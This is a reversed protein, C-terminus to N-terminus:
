KKIIVIDYVYYSIYIPKVYFEYSRAIDPTINVHINVQHPRVMPNCVFKALKNGQPIEIASEKKICGSKTMKIPINLENTLLIDYKTKPITIKLIFSYNNHDKQKILCYLRVMVTRLTSRRCNDNNIKLMVKVKRLVLYETASSTKIFQERYFCSKNKSKSRHEVIDHMTPECILKILDDPIMLDLYTMIAWQMFGERKSLSNSLRRHQTM